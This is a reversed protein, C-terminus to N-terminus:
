KLRRILDTTSFGEVLPIIITRGGYSGVFESGVVSEPKYDGGKVLIDPRLTRILDLPTDEDFLVVADVYAQAALLMARAQESNVPRGPGKLRRVSDDTNLGVVLRSGYQAAELLLHIHGLHLLDFCGNTFVIREGRLRWGACQQAASPATQVKDSIIQLKPKM